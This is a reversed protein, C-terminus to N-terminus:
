HENLFDKPHHVQKFEYVWVWPNSKWSDIGNIKMWLTKFSEKPGIFKNNCLYNKFRHVFPAISVREIGEAIADEETIDQLREVRVNTVELFIRARKKPMYISPKWKMIGDDDIWYGGDAKYITDWSKKNENWTTQWTERVWLIDGKHIKIPINPICMGTAKFGDIEIPSSVGLFNGTVDIDPIELDTKIGFKNESFGLNEWAKNFDPQPKLIRRTQTKRGELIAKVMETSFLIPKINM